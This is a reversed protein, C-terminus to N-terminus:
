SWGPGGSSCRRAAVAQAQPGAGGGGLRETDLVALAAPGGISPNASDLWRLVIRRCEREMVAQHGGSDLGHHYAPDPLPPATYGKVLAKQALWAAPPSATSLRSPM